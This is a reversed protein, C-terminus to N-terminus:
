EVDGYNVVFAPSAAEAVPAAQTEAELPPMESCMFTISIGEVLASKSQFAPGNKDAPVNILYGPLMDFAARPIGQMSIQPKKDPGFDYIVTSTPRHVVLKNQPNPDPTDSM